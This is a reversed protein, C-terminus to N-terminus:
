VGDFRWLCRALLPIADDRLEDPYGSGDGSMARNCVGEREQAVYSVHLLLPVRIRTDPSGDCRLMEPDGALVETGAVVGARRRVAAKHDPELARM